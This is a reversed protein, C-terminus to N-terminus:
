KDRHEQDHGGTSTTKGEIRSTVSNWIGGVSSGTGAVVAILVALIFGILVVYEITANGKRVSNETM